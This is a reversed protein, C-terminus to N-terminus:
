TACDRLSKEIAAQEYALRSLKWQRHVGGNTRACHVNLCVARWLSTQWKLGVTNCAPCRIHRVVRADGARVAHELRHRIELARSRQQDIDPAHETHQRCWDYVDAVHAPLPGADPNVTRTHQVVETVSANIYDLMGLNMPASPTTSHAPRGSPGPVPHQLFYAALEHLRTAATDTGDGPTSM